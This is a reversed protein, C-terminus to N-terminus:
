GGTRDFRPFVLTLHASSENVFRVELPPRDETTASVLPTTTSLTGWEM